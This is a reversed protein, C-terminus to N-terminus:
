SAINIQQNNYINDKNEIALVKLKATYRSLMKVLDADLNKLSQKRFGVKKCDMALYNVIPKCCLSGGSICEVKMDKTDIMFVTHAVDNRKIDSSWSSQIGVTLYIRLGSFSGYWLDVWGDPFHSKVTNELEIITNQPLKTM